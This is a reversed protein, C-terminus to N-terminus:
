CRTSPRASRAIVASDGTTAFPAEGASGANMAGDGTTAFPAEGASGANMAGDGTTAFPAEGASGADIAGDGTTAGQWKERGLSGPLNFEGCRRTLSHRRKKDCEGSALTAFKIESRSPITRSEMSSCRRDFRLLLSFRRPIVFSRSFSESTDLIM